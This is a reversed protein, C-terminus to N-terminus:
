FKQVKETFVESGLQVRLLYTGKHLATLDTKVSNQHSGIIGTLIQRGELDFIQWQGEQEDTEDFEVTMEDYVITPTVTFNRPNGYRLSVVKGYTAVGDFDVQKLRYYNTGKLPQEDVFEYFQQENTNGAGKVEGIKIFERTDASREIEFHSNNQELATSFTIINKAGRTEVQVSILGVPLAFNEAVTFDDIRNTPSSTSCGTSSTSNHTFKFTVNSQGNLAPLNFRAFAWTTTGSLTGVTVDPGGNISYTITVALGSGTKRHGVGIMIGTKGTFDFAGTTVTQTGSGGCNQFYLNNGGSAPPNSYGSSASTSNTGVQTSQNTSTTVSSTWGSPFGSSFNQTSIIQASVNFHFLLIFLFLSTRM